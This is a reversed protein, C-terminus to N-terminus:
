CTVCFMVAVTERKKADRDPAETCIETGTEAQTERFDTKLHRYQDRDSYAHRERTETYIETGPDTQVQTQM